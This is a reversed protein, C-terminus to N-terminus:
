KNKNKMSNLHKNLLNRNVPKAWKKVRSKWQKRDACYDYDVNTGEYYGRQKTAHTYDWFMSVNGSLRNFVFRDPFMSLLTLVQCVALPVDDRKLFKDLGMNTYGLFAAAQTKNVGYYDLMALLDTASKVVFRPRNRKLIIRREEFPKGANARPKRKNSEMGM